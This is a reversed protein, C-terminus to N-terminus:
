KPSGRIDYTYKVVAKGTTDLIEIINGFLDKRVIIYTAIKCLRVFCFRVRIAGHAGLQKTKQKNKRSV